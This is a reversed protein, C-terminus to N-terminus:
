VYQIPTCAGVQVISNFNENETHLDCVEKEEKKHQLMSIKCYGCIHM